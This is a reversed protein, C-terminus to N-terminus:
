AQNRLRLKKNWLVVQCSLGGTAALDAELWRGSFACALFYQDSLSSKFRPCHMWSMQRLRQEQSVKSTNQTRYSRPLLAAM